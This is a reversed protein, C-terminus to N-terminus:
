PKFYLKYFIEINYPMQDKIKDYIQLLSDNCDEDILKNEFIIMNFIIPYYQTQQDVLWKLLQSTKYELNTDDEVKRLITEIINENIRDDKTILYLDLISNFDINDLIPKIDVLKSDILGKQIYLYKTAPSLQPLYQKAVEPNIQYRLYVDIARINKTFKYM